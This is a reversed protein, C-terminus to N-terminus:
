RLFRWSEHVFITVSGDTVAPRRVTKLTLNYSFAYKSVEGDNVEDVRLEGKGKWGQVESLRCYGTGSDAEVYKARRVEGVDMLFNYDNGGFVEYQFDMKQLRHILEDVVERTSSVAFLYSPRYLLVSRKPTRIFSRWDKMKVVTMTESILGEYGLMAAGTMVGNKCSFDQLNRRDVGLVAGIFGLVSSPLPILYTDRYLKTLHKRFQATEFRVQFIAAGENLAYCTPQLLKLLTM